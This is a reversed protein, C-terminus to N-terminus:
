GAKKRQLRKLAAAAEECLRRGVQAKVWAALLREAEPTHALELAWVARLERAEEAPYEPAVSPAWQELIRGVRRKVEASPTGALAKRLEAEVPRGLQTLAAEAAERDAFAESDLAAILKRV